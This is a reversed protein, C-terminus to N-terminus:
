QKYQKYCNNIANQKDEKATDWFRMEATINGNAKKTGNIEMYNWYNADAGDVCNDYKIQALEEKLSKDNAIRRQEILKNNQVNLYGIVLVGAVVVITIQNIYQKIM